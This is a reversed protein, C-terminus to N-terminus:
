LKNFIVYCGMAAFGVLVSHQASITLASCIAGIWFAMCMGCNLPKGKIINKQIWVPWPTYTWGYAALGAVLSILLLEM